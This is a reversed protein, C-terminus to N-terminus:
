AVGHGARRKSALYEVADMPRRPAVPQMGLQRLALRVSGRLAHAVRGDHESIEGMTMKHDLLELRLIDVATRQILYKQAVNIRDAGGAHETLEETIIRLRRAERTRGDIKKLRNPRTIGAMPSIDAKYKKREQMPGAHV